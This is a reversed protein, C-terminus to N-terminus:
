VSARRTQAQPLINAPYPSQVQQSAPNQVQQYGPTNYWRNYAQYGAYTVAATTVLGGAVYPTYSSVNGAKPRILLKMPDPRMYKPSAVVANYVKSAAGSITRGVGTWFGPPPPGAGFGGTGGLGIGDKQEKAKLLGRFDDEQRRSAVSASNARSAPIRNNSAGIDM